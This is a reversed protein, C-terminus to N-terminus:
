GAKAVGRDIEEAKGISGVKGGCYTFISVSDVTEESFGTDEFKSVDQAGGGGLRTGRGLDEYLRLNRRIAPNPRPRHRPPKHHHGEPRQARQDVLRPPRLPFSVYPFLDVYPRDSSAVSANSSGDDYPSIARPSQRSEPVRRVAKAYHRDRRSTDPLELEYPGSVTWQRKPRSRHLSERQAIQM